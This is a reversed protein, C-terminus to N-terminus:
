HNGSHLIVLLGVVVNVLLWLVCSSMTSRDAHCVIMQVLIITDRISLKLLTRIKKPRTHIQMPTMTQM